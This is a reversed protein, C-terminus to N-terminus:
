KNKLGLEAMRRDRYARAEAKDQPCREIIQMGIRNIRFYLSGNITCLYADPGASHRGSSVARITGKTHKPCALLWAARRIDIGMGAAWAAQERTLTEM